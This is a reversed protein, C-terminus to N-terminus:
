PEPAPETPIDFNTTGGDSWTVVVPDIEIETLKFTIQYIYKTAQALVTSAPTYEFSYAKDNITYNITFSTFSTTPSAQPVLLVSGCDAYSNDNPLTSSYASSPVTTATASGFSGWTGTPTPDGATDYGTNTITFTGTQYAGNVVISTVDIADGYTAANPVRIKFQLWALAHKFEMDVDDPYTLMNGSKTVEEQKGSYMLDTQATFSAVDYTVTAGSAFTSATFSVDEADVGAVALFSVYADSLPWYRAPTGKWSTSNTGNFPTKDFYGGAAWASTKPFSYAAVQMTLEDPYTADAVAATTASAARTAKQALPSFAIERPQNVTNNEAVTEDNSCSALALFGGGVALIFLNKKM